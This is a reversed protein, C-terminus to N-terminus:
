LEIYKQLRGIVQAPLDIKILVDNGNYDQDLIHGAHIMGSVTGYESQPIRLQVTRRTKSIEQLMVRELDDFGTRQLASLCVTKPYTLRLRHLMGPNEQVRDMKNLVTIIPKKEADLEKLVELTTAAQEAAMPHSVDIVHILIDAKVAEELTSKFAAVLLHPLKRIFGVTDILLVQQHNVLEFKRTTTDLTAFLKDEVFVGAATLANLLTSKGANTYGVLAFIPIESRLRAQRQTGRIARIERIEKQLLDIRRKLLRRDIEIQKEGEGKLYKSGGGTGAQRSLHSWMRKLRPAQYRTKALEVQLQAEKTQARQAFVEIIVETRDMVPMKFYVELNRQQAPTIEHDFIVLQAGLEVAKQVLSEIKDQSLLTAAEFKRVLCSTVGATDVGYTDALLSLEELYEQCLALQDSETYVGILLAKSRQLLINDVM